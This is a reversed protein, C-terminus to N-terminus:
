GKLDALDGDVIPGSAQTDALAFPEFRPLHREIGGRPTRHFGVEVGSWRHGFGLRQEEAAALPRHRHSRDLRHNGADGPPCPHLAQRDRGMCQSVGERETVQRSTPSYTTAWISRTSGPIPAAHAALWRRVAARAIRSRRGMRRPELPVVHSDGPAVLTAGLMAHFYETRGNSRLRTSCQACHIKGSCFYQTGDLAILVHDGLRRFDDLGGSHEPEDLVTADM